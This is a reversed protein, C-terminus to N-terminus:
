QSIVRKSKVYAKAYFSDNVDTIKVNSRPNSAHIFKGNGIYIGVHSVVGNNSGNTDFFLLDGPKLESKKVTTGKNAQEKSTRPMTIGFQKFVYYVLGSCDFGDPTTGGWKYKVGIFKKAYEAIKEGKTAASTTNETRPSGSGRSVGSISLTDSSNAKYVSDSAVYTSLYEHYVWGTIGGSTRVNKWNGSGGIISVKEGKNLKGIIDSSTGASRRLNLISATVEAIVTDKTEDKAASVLASIYDEVVEANNEEYIARILSGTNGTAMLGNGRLVASLMKASAPSSEGLIATNGAGTDTKSNEAKSVSVPSIFVLSLALTGALVKKFSYM